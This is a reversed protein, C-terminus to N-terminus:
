RAAGHVRIGTVAHYKVRAIKKKNKKYPKKDPGGQRKGLHRHSPPVPAIYYEGPEFAGGRDFAIIEGRLARGTLYREWKNNRKIYTRAIHVRVAEVDKHERMICQAAACAAPDKNDGKRIDAPTIQLKVPKNADVVKTGNINM